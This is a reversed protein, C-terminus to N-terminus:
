TMWAQDSCVEEKRGWDKKNDVAWIVMKEEKLTM